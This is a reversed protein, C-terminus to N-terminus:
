FNFDEFILKKGDLWEMLQKRMPVGTCLYYKKVKVDQLDTQKLRRLQVKAGFEKIKQVDDSEVSENTIFVVLRSGLNPHQKLVDLVLGVDDKRITWFVTLLSYDLTSLSPLLPTIGVGAAIFAASDSEHKQTVEFEGGFGKVGVDIAQLKRHDGERGDHQFLFNTVTGVKRITIEFEDDKMRRVPDPISAPANSVTFTRVYDDNISQPDENAMHRYGMDLHRSFDFTVYQGPTYKAPNQLSFRFRSIDPTLKVQSLLTAQQLEAEEARPMHKEATLYRVAPNYPSRAGEIGRFALAQSVFRASTITIKVVLNSRPLIASAEKGILIDCRGTLYLMDGTDFDPICIGALPNITLNGLTQYLRNGSYEPYVLVAGSEENSVVRVFGPPGGRHNTDMDQDRNSSSIFFLDSKEILDLAQQSLQPSDHALVPKAPAPVIHRSNLYKPCNGLSQEIKLVLQIEAVTESHGTMEDERSSLAGAIMRGYLKVRKRTELDLTLGSVMRGKGEERFVQGTAETGVLEEVVPDHKGTVPTRIGILGSGIPQSFGKEGGWVTSWPRGEKDLTGIAILPAIQLHNSLQPSLAAVTPNDGDDPVQMASRMELEGEHFEMATFFAM